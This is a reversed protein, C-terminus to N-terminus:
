AVSKVLPEIEPQQKDELMELEYHAQLNIWFQATVDFAKSLRLAIETTIRRRGKIIDNIHSPPVHLVRALRNQSIGLPELFETLLIQGPTLPARKKM